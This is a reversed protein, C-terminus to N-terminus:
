LEVFVQPLFVFHELACWLYTWGEGEARGGGDGPHTQGSAVIVPRWLFGLLVVGGLISHTQERRGM